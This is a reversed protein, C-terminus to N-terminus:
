KDVSKPSHWNSIKRHLTAPSAIWKASMAQGVNMPQSSDSAIALLELVKQGTADIDVLQKSSDFSQTERLFRVYMERNTMVDGLFKTKGIAQTVCGVSQKSM